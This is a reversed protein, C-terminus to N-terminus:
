ADAVLNHHGFSHQQVTATLSQWQLEERKRKKQIKKQITKHRANHGALCHRNKVVVLVTATDRQSPKKLLLKALVMSFILPPRQDLTVTEDTVIVRIQQLTVKSLVVLPQSQNNKSLHNKNLITIFINQNSQPTM